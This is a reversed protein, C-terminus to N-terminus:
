NSLIRRNKFIFKGSDGSCFGRGKLGRICLMAVTINQIHSENFKKNCANRGLINVNQGMLQNTRETDSIRGFGSLFLKMGDSSKTDQPPLRLKKVNPGFELPTKLEYLSLDSNVSKQQYNPHIIVRQINHVQGGEKSSSSGVRVQFLKVDHIKGNKPSQACHGASLVFKQSLIGGGCHLMLNKKRQICVQWPCKSIDVEFGGLIRRQSNALTLISFILVLSFLISSSM